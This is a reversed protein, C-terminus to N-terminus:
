KFYEMWKLGNNVYNRDHTAPVGTAPFSRGTNHIHFADRFKGQRLKDGYTLNIWRAGVDIAQEGRLDAVNINLLLCKYGMLQFPGWSSALNQIAEDNAELLHDRTVHEYNNRLGAKVLKLRVYVHKEYRSPVPKRGSSELMCLAKLYAAPIKYRLAADDIEKGYNRLLMRAGGHGAQQIQQNNRGPLCGKFWIAWFVLVTFALLLVLLPRLTKM